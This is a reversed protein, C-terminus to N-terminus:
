EPEIGAAKLARGWKPEEAKIYDMYEQPSVIVPEAGMNRLFAVMEETKLIDNIVGNLRAIVPAPTGVPVIFGAWGVFEMPNPILERLTPVDPLVSSRKASTVAYPKVGGSQIHPLTLAIDNFMLNVQGGLIETVAQPGSKYPVALMDVNSAIRVSAGAVAGTANSYAFSIKGPNAKAYDIVERYNAAPFNKAGVMVTPIQFFGAVPALETLPNYPMKRLMHNAAVTSTSSIMAITYGDAPTRLTFSVGITGNAGARNDVVVPQGLVASMKQGLLRVAADSTNGPPAPVVIRVPKNPFPQAGAVGSAALLVGVLTAQLSRSFFKPKM